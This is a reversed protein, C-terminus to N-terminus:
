KDWWVKTDQTDGGMATVAANTAEANTSFEGPGYTYRRPIQKSSNTADPAPTLMPFGTKRWISWGQLGDPYTAIWRQTAIQRLNAGTGATATLAVGSQSFYSPAPAPQGWQMFSLSIGNQYLTQLNETTWGMDAAEARALTVHAAGIIVLPSTEQRLDGRLIRAWDANAATFAEAKNRLLGYPM